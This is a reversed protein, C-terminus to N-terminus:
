KPTTPRYEIGKDDFIKKAGEDKRTGMVLVNYAGDKDAIIEVKEGKDDVDGAGRGFHDVPAVWVQVDENLHKFYAPLSLEAKGGKVQVTWHYLNDGRTPSEVFSHRLRWGTRAPDPHPIDFTGSLKSISGNVHVNGDFYAGWTSGYAWVAEDSGPGGLVEAYLGYKTGTNGYARGYVGRNITSTASNRINAYLGQGRVNGVGDGHASSRVAILTGGGNVASYAGHRLFPTTAAQIAYVLAADSGQCVPSQCLVDVGIQGGTVRVGDVVLNDTLVELAGNYSSVVHLATLPSATGIGFRGSDDQYLASRAYGSDGNFSPIYNDFGAPLGGVHTHTSPSAGIDIRVQAPTRWEWSTGTSRLYAGPVVSSLGTGGNAAPLVGSTFVSTDHTHSLPAYITHTHGPDAGSTVNAGQIAGTASFNGAVTVGTGNTSVLVSSGVSTAGTWRAFKGPTGSGALNGVNEAAPEWRTQAQNWKLVQGSSPAASSVSRGQLRAVTATTQSVGTADGALAFTDNDRDVGCELRLTSSSWVLKQTAANCGGSISTTNFAVTRNAAFTNGGTLGQGTAFSSSSAAVGLSALAAAPSAAGTGGNAVGVPTAGWTGQTVTGVGTISSYAGSVRASPVLGAGDLLLLRNAANFVNGQLTVTAPDLSINVRSVGTSFSFPASSFTVTSGVTQVVAGNLAVAPSGLNSPLGTIKSWDVDLVHADNVAGDALRATGVAGAAIDAPGVSLPLIQVSSVGDARVGLAYPSSSLKSRPLQPSGGVTVQMWLDDSALVQGLTQGALAGEGVSVSFAGNVVAVQAGGTRTDSFLASGGSAQGYIEFVMDFSGNRPTGNQDTLKGQYHFSAPAAARASLALLAAFLILLWRQRRM